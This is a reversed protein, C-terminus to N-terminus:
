RAAQWGQQQMQREATRDLPEGVIQQEVISLIAPPLSTSATRYDAGPANAPDAPLLARIEWRAAHWCALGTRSAAQSLTFTRCYDGSKAMFSLGISVASGPPRDGALQNSLGQALAGRAVRTGHDDQIWVSATRHWAFLGAGIAVLVGAAISLLPHRGIRRRFTEEQRRELSARRGAADLPLISATSPQPADRIAAVLREPIPETLAPAYARELTSRLARHQAVQRQLEPDGRVAAEIREREPGALEGDAYAMLLEEPITM